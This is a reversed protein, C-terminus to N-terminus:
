TPVTIKRALLVLLALEVSGQAQDLAEAAELASFGSAQIRQIHELPFQGMSPQTSPQIFDRHFLHDIEPAQTQPHPSAVPGLSSDTTSGAAVSFPRQQSPDASKSIDIGSTNRDSIDQGKQGEPNEKFELDGQFSLIEALASGFGIEECLAQNGEPTYPCQIGQEERPDVVSTTQKERHRSNSSTPLDPTEQLSQSTFDAKAVRDEMDNETATCSSANVTPNLTVNNRSTPDLDMRDPDQRPIPTNSDSLHSRVCVQPCSNSMLLKHLEKLTQALSLTNDAELQNRESPMESNMSRESDSQVPSHGSSTAPKAHCPQLNLDPVPMLQPQAESVDEMVSVQERQSQELFDHDVEQKANSSVDMDMEQDFTQTQTTPNFLTFHSEAAVTGFTDLQSDSDGTIIGSTVENNESVTSSFPEQSSLTSPNPADATKECSSNSDALEQSQSRFTGDSPDPSPEEVKVPPFQLSETSEQTSYPHCVDPQPIEIPSAGQDISAPASKSRDLTLSHPYSSTSSPSTFPLSRPSTTKGDEIETIYLGRWSDTQIVDTRDATRCLDKYQKQWSETQLRRRDPRREDRQGM